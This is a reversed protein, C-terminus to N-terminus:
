KRTNLKYGLGKVTILSVPKSPDTEIKERIRRVHANLSNEYGFPNDGWLAECLTDVTVIRGDSRALTELFIHEMATLPIIEGAKRVEARSFDITCGDLNILPADERYCRRLVAYIRFLLEQPLFPKVIYDDAGLGLGSLRDMVEDKATLFIVPVDSFTRIQQMLSFGDGDPLMVDLIVLDPKENQVASIGDKVSFTTVINRFGDDSLISILMKLLEPEDDVLLLKKNQLFSHDM